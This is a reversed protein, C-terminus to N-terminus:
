PAIMLCGRRWPEDVDRGRKRERVNEWSRERGHGKEREGREERREGREGRGEGREERMARGGRTKKEKYKERVCM